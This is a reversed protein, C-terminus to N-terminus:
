PSRDPPAASGPQSEGLCCLWRYARSAQLLARQEAPLSHILDRFEILASRIEKRRERAMREDERCQEPVEESRHKQPDAGDVLVVLPHPVILDDLIRRKLIEMPQPQRAPKASFGTAMKKAEQKETYDPATDDIDDWDFIGFEQEIEALYSTLPSDLPSPHPPEGDRGPKGAKAIKAAQKEAYDPALDDLDDLAPWGFEAKIRDFQTQAFDHQAKRKAEQKEAYDPALDDFDDWSQWGFEAMIFDMMKDLPSSAPSPDVFRQAADLENDEVAESITPEPLKALWENIAQDIFPRRQDAQMTEMVALLDEVAFEMERALKKTLRSDRAKAAEIADGLVRMPSFKINPAPDFM